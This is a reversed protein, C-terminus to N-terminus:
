CIEVDTKITEVSNTGCHLTIETKPVTFNMDQDWIGLEKKGLIFKAEVMEGSRILVKQFGKLERVRRTVSSVKASIYLQVTEWADFAGRNAVKISVSFYAGKEIERVSIKKKEVKLDSYTFITYSLGFGFPYLAASSRDMYNRLATSAKKNYYFNTQGPYAPLSVSLKGSPVTRGFIIEALALGGMPGPYFSCILAPSKIGALCLPRGQISVAVTPKGIKEIEAVLQNQMGGLALDSVDLGEGCDM